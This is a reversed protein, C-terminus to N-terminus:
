CRGQGCSKGSVLTSDSVLSAPITIVRGGEIYVAPRNEQGFSATMGRIAKLARSKGTGNAGLLVTIRGFETKIHPMGLGHTTPTVEIPYTIENM